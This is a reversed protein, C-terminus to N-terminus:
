VVWEGEENLHELKGCPNGNITCENFLREADYWNIGGAEVMNDKKDYITVLMVERANEIYKGLLEHMEEANYPRLRAQIPNQAMFFEIYLNSVVDENDPDQLRIGDGYISKIKFYCKTNREYVFDGVRCWEPLKVPREILSNQWDSPDFKGCELVDAQIDTNNFVVKWGTYTSGPMASFIAVKGDANVAAYKAWEPCDPLDFVEATLKPLQGCATVSQEEHLSVLFAKVKEAAAEADEQTKFVNGVGYFKSDLSPRTGWCHNGVSGFYNFDVFYYREGHEPEWRESM